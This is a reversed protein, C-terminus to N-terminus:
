VGAGSTGECLYVKGGECSRVLRIRVQLGLLRELLVWTFLDGSRPSFGNFDRLKFAFIM